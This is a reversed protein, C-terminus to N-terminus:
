KYEIIRMDAKRWKRWHYRIMGLANPIKSLTVLGAMKTQHQPPASASKLMERTRWFSAGYVALALVTLPRWILLGLLTLAPLVEAYLIVRRREPRFYGPHLDAVQAFGHGTRVARQWWESFRTMAADHLTMNEPLRLLHWGSKLLRQCLEDDEAAIVRPDFGGTADFASRRVMMDGGCAQIPGAPRHWEWECLANYATSAPAIERRWGTVLGMGDDARLVKEARAIWDDEVGCDGDIFQIIDVTEPLAEAGANRARAATFPLSTDLEVVHAGIGKAFGVSDDRSGSDVYVLHEVQPALSTLCRKLRDGENRGIVVAGVTM